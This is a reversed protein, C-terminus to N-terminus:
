AARRNPWERETLGNARMYSPSPKAHLMVCEDCITIGAVYVSRKKTGAYVTRMLPYTYVKVGLANGRILGCSFCPPAERRVEVPRTRRNYIRKCDKCGRALHNPDTSGCRPYVTKM